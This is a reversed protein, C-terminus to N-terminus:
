GILHAASEAACDSKQFSVKGGAIDYGVWYNMQNLNGFIYNDDDAPVMTLCLIGDDVETFTNDQELEVDAGGSFHVVVTPAQLGEKQYCVRFTDDRPDVKHGRVANVLDAELSNYIDSPLYTLTTGSDIVIKNSGDESGYEIQTSGGDVTVSDLTLYYFTEDISLPTSVVGSGVPGSGSGFSITSTSDSGVSTLCYSFEDLGLQSVISLNGGGLGVIGSGSASFLGENDHGCGITVNAFPASGVTLTESALDGTTNSGDGYSYKYKCSNDDDCSGLTDLFSCPTSDCSQTQYTSSQTSDFFPDNQSYCNTCPQCQVWILDSGTDAVAHVKVPPTGLSVEMLYESSDPSMPATVADSTKRHNLFSKRAASRRFSSRLLDFRSVSPDYTPSGPYGRRILDVTVLGRRGARNEDFAQSSFSLISFLFLLLILTSSSSYFSSM